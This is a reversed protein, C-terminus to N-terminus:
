IISVKRGEVKLKDRCYLDVAEPYIQHEMELIRDTLSEKTDDQLVEVTRQLIIPGHDLEEDVFHVTCGTYRVGWDFAQGQADLGTFSPLLSPHINMIRNRFKRIFGKSLLRMYGALCVLDIDRKEIESAVAEDFEKRSSYIKHSFSLTEIGFNKAKELGQADTINSFVFVVEGVPEKESCLREVISVM